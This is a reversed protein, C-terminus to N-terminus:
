LASGVVEKYMMRKGKFTPKGRFVPKSREGSGILLVRQTRGVTGENPNLILRIFIAKWFVFNRSVRYM